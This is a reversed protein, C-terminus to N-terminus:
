GEFVRRYGYRAVTVAAFVGIGVEAALIGAKLVAPNHVFNSIGTELGQEVTGLSM